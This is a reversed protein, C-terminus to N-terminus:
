LEKHLQKLLTNNLTLEIYKKYTSGEWGIIETYDHWNRISCTVWIFEAARRVDWDDKLHGSLHLNEAVCECLEMFVHMRDQWAIRADDDYEQHHHMAHAIKGILPLYDCWQHIFAHLMKESSEQACVSEMLKKFEHVEDVYRVLHILLETRSEYHLYIAQRSLDANKAIDSIRVLKGESNEILERAVELIRM